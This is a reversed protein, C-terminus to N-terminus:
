SNAAAPFEFVVQLVASPDRDLLAYASAADEIDFRHSVLRTVDPSGATLLGVVTDQLRPVDWRARKHPPVAGIQSALLQIRNHHFEEGLRLSTADGQYFGAAVVRGDPGVLRIAEHLASYTGSLDVAVDAGRGGTLERIVLATDPGPGFTQQAGLRRALERRAPISEVAIVRAGSQAAFSTALLGIVGQGVVVVTEGLASEAALVANLAVAGVRVFCGVVPDLGAPLRHGRLDDLALVAESVHGWIGWVVDGVDVDAEARDAGLRPATEVVRGVESYGLGVLPYSPTSRTGGLFLRSSRDWQSTLYPNTGRYATLETGASVGSALTRIRAEGPRLAAIPVDAIDVSGPAIFRVARSM